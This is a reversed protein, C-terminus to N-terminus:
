YLDQATIRVKKYQFDGRRVHMSSYSPKGSSSSSLKVSEEELSCIVRGAACFIADPYHFFDRVLHKYYHDVRIDTFFLFAYFHNLLRHQKEGAHFHVLRASALEKGFFVPNRGNCFDDVRRRTSDSLNQYGGGGGDQDSDFILCHRGGQIDPVHANSRLFEYVTDCPRDSKAIYYCQEASNLIKTGESGEPLEFMGATDDGGERVLFETMTIMSLKKGLAANELDLFDAFGHHRKKGAKAGNGDKSLLYFPTDPPLVLTRGTAAAFVMVIELSMRINNWGGRDPEFTVYRRRHDDVDDSRSSRPDFPSVFSVDSEGQPDNWYALEDMNRGDGGDEPCSISGHRAGILAPTMSSPLGSVGRDLRPSDPRRRDNMISAYVHTRGRIDEVSISSSNSRNRGGEPVSEVRGGGDTGDNKELASEEWEKRRRRLGALRHWTLLTKNGAGGLMGERHGITRSSSYSSFDGFLFPSMAILTFAAAATVFVVVLRDQSPPRSRRSPPPRPRRRRNDLRREDDDETSAALGISHEMAM